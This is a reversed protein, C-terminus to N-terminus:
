LYQLYHQFSAQEAPSEVRGSNKLMTQSHFARIRAEGRYTEAVFWCYAGFLSTKLM